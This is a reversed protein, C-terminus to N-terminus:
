LGGRVLPSSKQTAFLSPSLINREKNRERRSRKVAFGGGEDSPPKGSRRSQAYSFSKLVVLRAPPKRQVIFFCKGVPLHKKM